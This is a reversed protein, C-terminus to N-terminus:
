KKTGLYFMVKYYKDKPANTMAVTMGDVLCMQINFIYEYIHKYDRESVLYEIKHKDFVQKTHKDLTFDSMINDTLIELLKDEFQQLEDTKNRLRDLFKKVGILHEIM